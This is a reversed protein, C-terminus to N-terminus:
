IGPANKKKKKKIPHAAFSGKTGMKGEPFPFELLLLGHSFNRIFCGQFSM